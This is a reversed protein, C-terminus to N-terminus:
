AVHEDSLRSFSNGDACYLTLPVKEGTVHLTSLLNATYSIYGLNTLTIFAVAGKAIADRASTYVPESSSSAVPIDVGAVRALVRRRREELSEEAPLSMIVMACQRRGLPSGRSTEEVRSTEEM